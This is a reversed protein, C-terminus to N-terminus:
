LNLMIVIERMLFVLNGVFSMKSLFLIGQKVKRIKDMDEKDFCIDRSTNEFGDIVFHFYQIILLLLLIVCGIRADFVTYTFCSLLFGFVMTLSCWGVRFFISKFFNENKKERYFQSYCALVYAIGLCFFDHGFYVRSTLRIVGRKSDYYSILISKAEVINIDDYNQTARKAIEFGDLKQIFVNRYRFYCFLVKGYTFILIFIGFLLLLNAFM